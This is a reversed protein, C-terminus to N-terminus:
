ILVWVLLLVIIFRRGGGNRFAFTL